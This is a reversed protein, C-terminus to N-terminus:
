ARDRVAYHMFTEHVLEVAANLDYGREFITRRAARALPRLADLDRACRDLASRLSEVRQPEIHLGNVEHHLVFPIGNVPSAVCVLACAMAELLANPLGERYTPLVFVDAARMWRAVAATDQIGVFRARASAKEIRERTGQDRIPGVATFSCHAHTDLLDPIVQAMEATGKAATWTGVFLWLQTNQPIGLQERLTRRESDSAPKFVDTDVGNSVASLRERDIWGTAALEAYLGEGQCLIAAANALLRRYHDSLRPDDAAAKVFRVDHGRARLLYRIDFHEALRAAAYGFPVLWDGVVVDPRWDPEFTHVVHAAASAYNRELVIGGNAAMLKPIWLGRPRWIEIGDRKSRRPYHRGLGKLERYFLPQPAIVRIDWGLRQLAVFQRHIFIGAMDAPAESPYSQALALLKM